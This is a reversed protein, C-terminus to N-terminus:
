HWDSFAYIVYSHASPLNNIIPFVLPGPGESGKEGAYGAVPVTAAFTASVYLAFLVITRLFHM